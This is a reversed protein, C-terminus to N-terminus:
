HATEPSAFLNVQAVGFRSWDALSGPSPTEVGWSTSSSVARQGGSQVSRPHPHCSAVESAESELLPASPRTAVHSPLTVANGTSVRLPRRTTRVSWFMRAEFAGELAPEPGPTSSSVRPLQYALATPSEDMGRVSRARQVHSGLGHGLCGHIVSCSQIGAGPASSGSPVLSRDMPQRKKPLGTYDSGPSYRTVVGVEPSPWLALASTTEVIAATAAM